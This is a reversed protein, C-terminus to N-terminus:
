HSRKILRFINAEKKRKAGWQNGGRKWNPSHNWLFRPKWTQFPLAKYKEHNDVDRPIIDKFTYTFNITFLVTYYCLEYILKM